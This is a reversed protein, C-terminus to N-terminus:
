TAKGGAPPTKELFAPPHPPRVASSALDVLYTALRPPTASRQGPTLDRLQRRRPNALQFGSWTLQSPKIGVLYLWTMKSCPHGYEAQDICVSFPQDKQAPQNPWPLNAATWLRSHAPQELIGGYQQVLRVCHMGLLLENILVSIPASARLNWRSWFRCPPHAIIPRRAQCLWADRTRSYCDAQPFQSYVTSRGTCLVHIAIAKQETFFLRALQIRKLRSVDVPGGAKRLRPGKELPKPNNLSPRM